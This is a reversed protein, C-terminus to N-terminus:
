KYKSKHLEYEISSEVSSCSGLNPILESHKSEFIEQIPETEGTSINM